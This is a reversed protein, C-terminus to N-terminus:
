VSNTTQMMTSNFYHQSAPYPASYDVHLPMKLKFGAQSVQCSETELDFFIHQSKKQFSPLGLAQWMVQQCLFPTPPWMRAETSVPPFFQAAALITYCVSQQQQLSQLGFHKVFWSAHSM